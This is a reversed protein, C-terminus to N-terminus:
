SAIIISSSFLLRTVGRYQSTRQGFTDISKRHVTQKQVQLKEPGRKKTVMAVSETNDINRSATVCSSQSGPSMSLTLSQLDGSGMNTNVQQQQQQLANNHDIWTKFCPIQEEFIPPHKTPSEQYITNYASYYHNQQQQQQQRFPEQNYFASDLSLVMADRPSISPYHHTAM